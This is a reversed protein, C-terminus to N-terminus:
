RSPAARVPVRAQRRLFSQPEPPRIGARRSSGQISAVPSNRFPHIAMSGRSDPESALRPGWCAFSSPTSSPSLPRVAFGQLIQLGPIGGSSEAQQRRGAKQPVCGSAMAQRWPTAFIELPPNFGIGPAFRFRDARALEPSKEPQLPHLQCAEQVPGIVKSRARSVTGSRLAKQVSTHFLRHM